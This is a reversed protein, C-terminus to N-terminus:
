SPESGFSGLQAGLWALVSGSDCTELRDGLQARVSGFLADVLNM